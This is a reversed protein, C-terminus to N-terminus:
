CRYSAGGDRVEIIFFVLLGGFFPDVTLFFATKLKEYDESTRSTLLNSDSCFAEELELPPLISVSLRSEDILELLLDGLCNDGRM